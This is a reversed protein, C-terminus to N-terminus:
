NVKEKLITIEKRSIVELKHPFAEKKLEWQENEWGKVEVYRDEEPLYFDPYYNHIDGKYIYPFGKTNREFVIHEQLAWKIWILEWSSDYYYGKYSGHKYNRVSGERYGGKSKKRFTAEKDKLYCERRCYIRDSESPFLEFTSGCVPCTKKLKAPKSRLSNQKTARASALARMEPTWLKKNRSSSTNSCARSCFRIPSKAIAGKDVRYDKEFERGCVECIHKM